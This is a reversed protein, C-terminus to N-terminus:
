RRALFRTELRVILGDRLTFVNEGRGSGGPLAPSYCTWEARVTDGDVSVADVEIRMEPLPTRWGERMVDRIARHGRHERPTGSFPEIYTADAAFLRMLEEESSAGGQMARFFRTVTGTHDVSM